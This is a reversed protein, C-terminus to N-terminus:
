PAETREHQLLLAAAILVQADRRSRIPRGDHSLAEVAMMFLRRIIAERDKLDIPDPVHFAM